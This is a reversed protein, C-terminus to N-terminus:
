GRCSDYQQHPHFHADRYERRVRVCISNTGSGTCPNCLLTGQTSFSTNFALEGNPLIVFPDAQITTNALLCLLASLFLKRM